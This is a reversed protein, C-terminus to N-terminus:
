MVTISLQMHLVPYPKGMGDVASRAIVKFGMREYFALAATNQENVDVQTVQQKEIAFQTLQKGLGKGRADPHLFLMELNGESVGMFGLITNQEDRAVTLQVHAFLEKEKIIAKFFLLDEEKLFHHTARVSAEWLELLEPFEEKAASSLTYM